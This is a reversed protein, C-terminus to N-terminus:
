LGCVCKQFAKFIKPKVSLSSSLSFLPYTHLFSARRVVIGLQYFLLRYQDYFFCYVGSVYSPNKEKSPLHRLIFNTM